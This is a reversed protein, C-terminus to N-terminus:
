RNPFYVLSLYLSLCNNFIITKDLSSSVTQVNINNNCHPIETSYNNNVKNQLTNQEIQICLPPYYTLKLINVIISRLPQFYLLTINNVYLNNKHVLDM